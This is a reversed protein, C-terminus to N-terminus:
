AEVSGEIFVFDRKVPDWGRALASCLLARPVSGSRRPRSVWEQLDRGGPIDVIADQDRTLASGLFARPM